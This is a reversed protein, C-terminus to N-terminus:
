HKLTSKDQLIQDTEAGVIVQYSNHSPASVEVKFIWALEQIPQEAWIVPDGRVQTITTGALNYKAAVVSKARDASFRPETNISDVIKMENNVLYVAGDEKRALITLSGGYVEFGEYTQSFRYSKSLETSDEKVPQGFLQNPPFGLAKALEAVLDRAKEFNVGQSSILGGSLSVVKGSEDRTASWTGGYRSNLYEEISSAGSKTATQAGPNLPGPSTGPKPSLAALNRATSNPDDTQASNLAQNRNWQWLALVIALLIVTIILTTRRSM